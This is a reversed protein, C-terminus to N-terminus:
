LDVVQKEKAKETAAETETTTSHTSSDKAAALGLAIVIGVLAGRWDARQHHAWSSLAAVFAPCSLVFVVGAAVNTKWNAGFVKILWAM